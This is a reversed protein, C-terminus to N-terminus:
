VLERVEAIARTNADVSFQEERFSAHVGALRDLLHTRLTRDKFVAQRVGQVDFDIADPSACAHVLTSV